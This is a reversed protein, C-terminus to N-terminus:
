GDFCEEATPTALSKAAEAAVGLERLGAECFVFITDDKGLRGVKSRNCFM